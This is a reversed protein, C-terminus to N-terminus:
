LLQDKYNVFLMRQLTCAPALAFNVIEVYCSLLILVEWKQSMLHYIVASRNGLYQFHEIYFTTIHMELSRIMVIKRM